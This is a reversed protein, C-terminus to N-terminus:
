GSSSTPYTPRDTRAARANALASAYRQIGNAMLGVDEPPPL